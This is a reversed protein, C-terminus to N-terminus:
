HGREMTFFDVKTAATKSARKAVTSERDARLEPLVQDRAEPGLASDQFIADLRAVADAYKKDRGVVCAVGRIQRGTSSDEHTVVCRTVTVEGLNFPKGTGGSRGRVMALGTEPKRLYEMERADIRNNLMDMVKSKDSLTLIRLWDKRTQQELSITATM